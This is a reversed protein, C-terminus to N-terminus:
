PRYTKLHGNTADIQITCFNAPPTAQGDTDRVNRLTLFWPATEIQSLNLSGNPMFQISVSNYKKGARPIATTQAAAKNAIPLPQSYSGPPTIISSLASGSDIAVSEPLMQSKGLAKYTGTEEIKFLQLARFSGTDPNGETEGRAMPDAYQYFRIEVICNTTLATQRALALQESILQAGRTIQSGKAFSSMTPGAMAAVLVM